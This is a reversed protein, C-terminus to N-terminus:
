QGGEEAANELNAIANTMDEIIESKLFLNALGKKETTLNQRLETIKEKQQLTSSTQKKYENGLESWSFKDGLNAAANKIATLIELRSKKKRTTKSTSKNKKPPKYEQEKSLTATVADVLASWEADNKSFERQSFVQRVKAVADSDDTIKARIKDLKEEYKATWYKLKSRQKANDSLASKVALKAADTAEITTSYNDVLQKSETSKKPTAAQKTTRKAMMMGNVGLALVVVM